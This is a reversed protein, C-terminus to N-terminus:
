VVSKRDAGVEVLIGVVGPLVRGIRAARVRDQNDVTTEGALTVVPVALAGALLIGTLAAARGNPGALIEFTSM